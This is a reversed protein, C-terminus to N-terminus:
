RSSKDKEIVQEIENILAVAGTEEILENIQQGNLVKVLSGDARQLAIGPMQDRTLEWGTRLEYEADSYCFRALEEAEIDEFNRATEGSRKDRQEMYNKFAGWEEESMKDVPPFMTSIPSIVLNLRSSAFARFKHTAFVDTKLQRPASSYSSSDLFHLTYRDGDPTLYSVDANMEKNELWNLEPSDQYKEPHIVEDIREIFLWTWSSAGSTRYVENGDPGLLIYTPFGKVNFKEKLAQNQEVLEEPLEKENPFDLYVCELHEDAYRKFEDSSFVTKEMYVCYRCWDSGTFDLLVHKNNKQADQQAEAYDTRWISDDGQLSAPTTLFLTIAILTLLSFKM